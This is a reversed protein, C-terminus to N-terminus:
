TVRDVNRLRRLGVIGSVIALALLGPLIYLAETM